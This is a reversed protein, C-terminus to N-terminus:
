RFDGFVASDGKNNDIKFLDVFDINDIDINEVFIVAILGAGFTEREGQNPFDPNDDILTERRRDIVQRGYVLIIEFSFDGRPSKKRLKDM